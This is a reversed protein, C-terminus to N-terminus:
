VLQVMSRSETIFIIIVGTKAKMYRLLKVIFLLGLMSTFCLCSKMIIDSVKCTKKNLKCYFSNIILLISMVIFYVLLLHHLIIIIKIAKLLASLHRMNRNKYIFVGSTGLSSYMFIALTYPYRFSKYISDKDVFLMALTIMVLFFSRSILSKRIQDILHNENQNLAEM